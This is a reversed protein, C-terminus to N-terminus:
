KELHLLIKNGENDELSIHKILPFKSQEIFASPSGRYGNLSKKFKITEDNNLVLEAKHKKPICKQCNFKLRLIKKEETDSIYLIVKPFNVTSTSPTLVMQHNHEVYGLKNLSYLILVTGFFIPIMLILFTLYKM